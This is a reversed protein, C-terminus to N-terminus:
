SLEEILIFENSMIEIEKAMNPMIWINILGFFIGNKNGIDIKNKHEMTEENQDNILKPIESPSENVPILFIM